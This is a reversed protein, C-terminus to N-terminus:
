SFTLQKLTIDDVGALRVTKEASTQGSVITVDRAKLALKKAIVACIAKNAKGGAPPASIRIKLRDGVMGVIEDRSAGPVAKIKLLVDDGDRQIHPQKNSERM